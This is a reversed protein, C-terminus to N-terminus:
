LVLRRRHIDFRTGGYANWIPRGYRCRRHQKPRFFRDAKEEIEEPVTCRTRAPRSTRSTRNVTCNSGRMNKQAEPSLNIITARSNVSRITISCLVKIGGYFLSEFATPPKHVGKSTICHSLSPIQTGDQFWKARRIPRYNLIEKSYQPESKPSGLLAAEEMSLIRDTPILLLKLQRSRASYRAPFTHISEM